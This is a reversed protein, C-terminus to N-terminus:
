CTPPARSAVTSLFSFPQGTSSDGHYHSQSSLAPAFFCWLPTLFATFFIGSSAPLVAAALVAVLCLVVLWKQTHGTRVLGNDM